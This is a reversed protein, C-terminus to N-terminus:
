HRDFEHDVLKQDFAKWKQKNYNPIKIKKSTKILCYLIQSIFIPWVRFSICIVINLRNVGCIINVNDASIIVIM